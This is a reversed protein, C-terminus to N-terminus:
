EAASSALAAEIEQQFFDFPYYGVILKGNLLFSPTGHVGAAQGDALDKEMEAKFRHETMCATFATQDLGVAKAFAQLRSESFAYPDSADQNAYLIDHYEWFKGQDAACLSAEAAAISPSYLPFNRFIFYVKGTRVYQDMIELETTESFLKCHSCEFDAFEEIKVPAHPDGMGTGSAMPHNINEPIVIKEAQQLYPLLVIALIVVAVGGFFLFFTVRQRIQQKRRKERLEARKSM